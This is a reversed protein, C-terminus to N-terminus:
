VVTLPSVRSGGSQPSIGLLLKEALWREATALHAVIVEKNLEVGTGAKDTMSIYGKQIYPGDLKILQDMWGGEGTVTEGVLYDRISSAWQAAQYTHVQSATNDTCISVGYVAAMDAIRKTDLFGGSNRLDPNVIHCGQHTIFPLFGGRRTLNEGM